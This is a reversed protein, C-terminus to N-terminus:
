DEARTIEKVTIVRSVEYPMFTESSLIDDGAIEGTITVADLPGISSSMASASSTDLGYIVADDTVLGLQCTPTVGPSKPALCTFHGSARVQGGGIDEVSNDKGRFLVVATIVIVM